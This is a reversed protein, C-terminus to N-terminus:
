GAAQPEDKQNVKATVRVFFANTVKAYEVLQAIPATNTAIASLVQLLEGLAVFILGSIVAFCGGVIQTFSDGGTLLALLLGPVLLLWGVVRLTMSVFKLGVYQM